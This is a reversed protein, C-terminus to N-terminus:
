PTAPGANPAAISEVGRAARDLTQRLRWVDLALGAGPIVVVCWLYWWAHFFRGDRYVSWLWALLFYPAACFGIRVASRQLLDWKTTPIYLEISKM